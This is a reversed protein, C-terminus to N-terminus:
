LNFYLALIESLKVQSHGILKGPYYSKFQVNVLDSTVGTKKLVVPDDAYVVFISYLIVFVVQVAFLILAFKKRQIREVTTAAGTAVAM